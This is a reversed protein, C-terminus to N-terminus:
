EDKNELPRRRYRAEELINVFNKLNEPSYNQLFDTIRSHIAEVGLRNPLRVIVVGNHSQPPYHEPSGFELDKTLLIYDENKAYRAIKEDKVGKMELELIHEAQYGEERLRKALSAPLNEDVLFKM